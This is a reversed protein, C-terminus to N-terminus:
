VRAWVVTLAAVQMGNLKGRAGCITSLFVVTCSLQLRKSNTVSQSLPVIQQATVTHQEICVVHRSTKKYQQLVESLHGKCFNWRTKLSYSM